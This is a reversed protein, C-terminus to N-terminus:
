ANFSRYRAVIFMFIGYCVLGAAIIAMLWPGSSSQQLFSFAGSQGQVNGPNSELAAKLFFYGVIGILVGRSIYGAYGANKVIKQAKHHPIDTTRINKTFNGSYVRYFQYIAKGFLALAILIVVFVGFSSQLLEAVITQRSQGSGSGGSGLVQTIAYIGFGLYILGSIFYGIRIVKSKNEPDQVSQVFRWFAYCALGIALLVLLVNGFPQKQLFEIVQMKGAKEGGMNFAALLTLVGAIGYVAGKAIHGIRGAKEKWNDSHGSSSISTNM